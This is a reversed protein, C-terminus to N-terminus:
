GQGDKNNQTERNHSVAIRLYLERLGEEIRPGLVPNEKVLREVLTALTIRDILWNRQKILRNQFDEEPLKILQRFKFGGVAREFTLAQNLKSLATGLEKKVKLEEETYIRERKM